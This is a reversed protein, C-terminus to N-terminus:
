LLICLIYVCLLCPTNPFSLAHSLSPPLSGLTPPASVFSCLHSPLFSPLQLFFFFFLSLFAQLLCPCDDQASASSKIPNKPPRCCLPLTLNGMHLCCIHFPARVRWWGLSWHAACDLVRRAGGSAFGEGMQRQKPGM